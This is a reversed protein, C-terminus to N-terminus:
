PLIEIRNLQWISRSFVVESQYEPASDYPYVIWLPGKDRVSMTEGNLSYAIMPGGLSIETLPMEIRYDNIATASLTGSDVNLGDLFTKLDIGEFSQIGDTWMTSTTFNTKPLAQLQTLTYTAAVPQGNADPGGSVTLVIDDASNQALAPQAAASFLAFGLAIALKLGISGHKAACQAVKNISHPVIM